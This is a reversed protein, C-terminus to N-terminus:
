TSKSPPRPRLRLLRRSRSRRTRGVWRSPARSSSATRLSSCRRRCRRLISPSISSCRSRRPPPWAAEPRGSRSSRRGRSTSNRTGDQVHQQVARARQWVPGDRREDRGRHDDRRAAAGDLPLGDPQRDLPQPQAVAPDRRRLARRHQRQGTNPNISESFTLTVTAYPGVDTAGNTPTVSLVTPGNVDPVNATTFQALQNPLSLGAMDRIAGNHNTYWQITSNAPFAGTVAFTIVTGTSDVSYQGALQFTGVGSLVAFVPVSSPGVATATIRESTTITLLSTVGVGASANTPTRSVIAPATTDPTGSAGTTFGFTASAMTNSSTDRLGSVLVSYATSPTLNASPTFTLTLRDTALTVTGAAAPVLQISANTVSTSDILESMVVIVRTNVPLSPLGNAPSIAAVVPPTADVGAGTYFYFTTGSGVNGAVDTVRRAAARLLAHLARLPASPTLTASRRDAAVAVVADLPSGVNANAITLTDTISLPDIPESFTVRAIMNVGVGHDEAGPTTGTITPAILDTRSGTTFTSTFTSTMLNNSTDRVGTVSITYSRNQTLLTSPRLTLVRNNDSLTRTVTVPTTGGSLLRM